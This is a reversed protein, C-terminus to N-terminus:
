TRYAGRRGTDDYALGWRRLPKGWYSRKPKALHPNLISTGGNLRWIGYRKGNPQRKVLGKCKLVRLVGQVEGVSFGAKFWSRAAGKFPNDNLKETIEYVSLGARVNCSLLELVRGKVIENATAHRM